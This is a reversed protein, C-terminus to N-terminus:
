EQILNDSEIFPAYHVEQITKSTGYFNAILAIEKNRYETSSITGLLNRPDFIYFANTIERDPFRAQLNEITPLYNRWTPEQNDTGLFDSTIKQIVMDIQIKVEYLSIDNAQFILTLRQLDGLIDALFSTTLLFKQDIMDFLMSATKSITYDEQLARIVSNIIHYLNSVVNSLSLWRTTVLKLLHLEPEELQTEIMKLHKALALRHSICHHEMLYLNKKKFQVAVGNNRGASGINMLHNIPLNKAQIFTSLENVVADATGEKLEIMGLYRYIPLNKSIHKSIIALNKDMTVTNSEDIIISWVPSERIEQCIAEEILPTYEETSNCKVHYETLSTLDNIKSTAVLNKALSLHSTGLQNTFGIELSIQLKDRTKILKQHDKTKIHRKISQEKLYECGMVFNNNLKASECLKCFLVPKEKKEDLRLWPYTIEWTPNWKLNEKTLQAFKPKPKKYNYDSSFANDSNNESSSIVQDGDLSIINDLSTTSSSASKENTLINTERKKANQILTMPTSLRLKPSKSEKAKLPYKKTYHQELLEALEATAFETLDPSSATFGLKLFQKKEMAIAEDIFLIYGRSIDIKKNDGKLRGSFLGK